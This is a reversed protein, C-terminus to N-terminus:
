CTLLLQGCPSRVDSQQSSINAKFHESDPGKHGGETRSENDASSGSTHNAYMSWFNADLSNSSILAMVRVV